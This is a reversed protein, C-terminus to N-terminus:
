IETRLNPYRRLLANAEKPHLRGAYTGTQQSKNKAAAQAAKVCTYFSDIETSCLDDVFNNDKWCAMLVSMETVCSAEGKSLKRDAVTDRLALPRNPKLVPKGNQRSLMKNVKQLFAVGGQSAM